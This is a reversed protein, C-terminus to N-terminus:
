LAKSSMPSRWCRNAESTILTSMKSSTSAMTMITMSDVMALPLLGSPPIISILTRRSPKMRMKHNTTPMKRMGSNRLFVRLSIVSSISMMMENPNHKRIATMAVRAPKLEAKPAKTIPLIRASVM